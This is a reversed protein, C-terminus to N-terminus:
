RIEVRVTATPRVAVDYTIVMPVTAALERLPLLVIGLLLFLAALRRTCRHV